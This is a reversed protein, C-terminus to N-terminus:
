AVKGPTEGRKKYFGPGFDIEDAHEAIVDLDITFAYRKQTDLDFVSRGQFYSLDGKGELVRTYANWYKGELSSDHTDVVVGITTGNTMLHQWIDGSQALARRAHRQQWGRTAAESRRQTEARKSAVKARAQEAIANRARTLWGRNARLQNGIKNLRRTRWSRKGPSRPLTREIKAYQAELEAIRVRAHRYRTHASTVRKYAAM